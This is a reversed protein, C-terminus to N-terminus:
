IYPHSSISAYLFFFELNKTSAPKTCAESGKHTIPLYRRQLQWCMINIIHSCGAKTPNIIKNDNWLATRHISSGMLQNALQKRHDFSSQSKLATISIRTSYVTRQRRQPNHRWASKYYPILPQSVCVTEMKLSSTVTSSLPSNTYYWFFPLKGKLQRFTTRVRVNFRYDTGKCPVLTVEQADLPCLDTWSIQHYSTLFNIVAMMFTPRHYNINGSGTQSTRLTYWPKQLCTKDERGQSRGHKLWKVNRPVTVSM